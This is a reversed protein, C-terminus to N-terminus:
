PSRRKPPRAILFKQGDATAQYGSAGSFLARAGDITISEGESEVTVAMLRGDEAVYFLERGDARWQPESGGTASAARRRGSGALTRVYVENRGSENSVYAIWQGNPSFRAQAETFPTTTLPVAEGTDVTIIWIDNGAQHLISRGDPSWDLPWGGPAEIDALLTDQGPASTVYPDFGRGRNSTFVIRDGQPSWVPRLDPAPRFTLRESTGRALELEWIEAGQDERSYAVKTEDPSLRFGAYVQPLAAVRELLAGARDLWLLELGQAPVYALSGTDSVSFVAISGTASVDNALVV